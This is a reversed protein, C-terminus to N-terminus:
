KLLALSGLGVKFTFEINLEGGNALPISGLTDSLQKEIEHDDVKWDGLLPAYSLPDIKSTKTLEALIPASYTNKPDTDKVTVPRYLPSLTIPCELKHALEKDKIEIFRPIQKRIVDLTYTQM